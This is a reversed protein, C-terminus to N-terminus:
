IGQRGQPLSHSQSVPSQTFIPDGGGGGGWRNHVLNEFFMPAVEWDGEAYALWKTFYCSPTRPNFLKQWQQSAQCEAPLLLLTPTPASLTLHICTEELNQLIHNDGSCPYMFSMCYTNSWFEACPTLTVCNIKLKALVRAGGTMKSSMAIDQKIRTM